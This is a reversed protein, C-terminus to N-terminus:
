RHSLYPQLSLWLAGVQLLAAGVFAVICSTLTSTTRTRFFNILGFMSWGGIFITLIIEARTFTGSLIHAIGLLFLWILTMILLWFAFIAIAAYPSWSARRSLAVLVVCAPLVQVVHRLPTGSVLGVLLLGFILGMLCSSLRRDTSSVPPM